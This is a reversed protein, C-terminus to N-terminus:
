PEANDKSMAREFLEEVEADSLNSLDIVNETRQMKPMAFELLRLWANVRDKPELNELDNLVADFNRDLLETVRQRLNRNVANPTGPQRGGTKPKGKQFPM